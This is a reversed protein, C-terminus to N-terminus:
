RALEYGFSRIIARAKDGQLYNALALAAPKDKGNALVIADQRLPTHL